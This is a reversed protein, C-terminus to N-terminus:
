SWSRSTQAPFPYADIDRYFVGGRLIKGAATLLAGEDNGGLRYGAFIASM